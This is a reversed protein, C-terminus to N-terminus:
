AASAQSDSNQGQSADSGRLYGEIEDARVLYWKDVEVLTARPQDLGVTPAETSTSICIFWSTCVDVYM